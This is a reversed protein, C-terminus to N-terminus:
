RWYCLTQVLLVGLLSSLEVISPWEKEFNEVTSGLVFQQSDIVSGVADMLQTRLMQHQQRLDILPVKM